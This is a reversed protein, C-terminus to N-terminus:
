RPFHFFFHLFKWIQRTLKVILIDNATVCIYGDKRPGQCKIPHM